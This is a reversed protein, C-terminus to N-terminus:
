RPWTDRGSRYWLGFLTIAVFVSLTMVVIVAPTVSGGFGSEFTIWGFLIVSVCVM